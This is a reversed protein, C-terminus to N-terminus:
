VKALVDGFKLKVACNGGRDTRGVREVVQRVVFRNCLHERQKM